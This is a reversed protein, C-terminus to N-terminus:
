FGTILKPENNEYKPMRKGATANIYTPDAITYLDQGHKITSGIPKELLVATAVHGPFDLGIVKINILNEVLWAFIISRDECDSSPYFITEEIFLYNEKGFQEHDTKYHFATQV